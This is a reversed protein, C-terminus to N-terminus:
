GQNREGKFKLGKHPKTGQGTIYKHKRTAESGTNETPNILLYRISKSRRTKCLIKIGDRSFLDTCM